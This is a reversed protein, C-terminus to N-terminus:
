LISYFKNIYYIIFYLLFYKKKYYEINLNEVAM